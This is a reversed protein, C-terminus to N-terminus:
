FADLLHHIQGPGEQGVPLQHPLAGTREPAGGYRGYLGGSSLYISPHIYIFLYISLYIFLYRHFHLNISVYISIFCVEIFGPLVDAYHWRRLAGGSPFPWQAAALHWRRQWIGISSGGFPSFISLFLRGRQFGKLNVSAGSPHKWRRFRKISTHKNSNEVKYPFAIIAM